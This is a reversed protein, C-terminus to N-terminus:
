TRVALWKHQLSQLSSETSRWISITQRSPAMLGRKQAMQFLKELGERGLEGLEVTWENVYLEVHKMLGHDEFKQAYQRMTPIAAERNALSYQLSERIVSQVRDLGDAPLKQNAVLGVLPTPCQTAEEWRTGLDEGM